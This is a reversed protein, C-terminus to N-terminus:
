DFGHRFGQKFGQQILDPAPIAERYLKTLRSAMSHSLGEAVLTKEFRKSAKEAKKKIRGLHWLMKVSLWMAKPVVGIM